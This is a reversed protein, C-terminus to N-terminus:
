PRSWNSANYLVWCCVRSPRWVAELKYRHALSDSSCFMSGISRKSLDRELSMCNAFIRLGVLCSRHLEESLNTRTYDRIGWYWWGPVLNMLKGRRPVRKAGFTATYRWDNIDTHKLRARECGFGLYQRVTQLEDFVPLQCYLLLFLECSAVWILHNLYSLVKQM